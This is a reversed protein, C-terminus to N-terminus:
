LDEYGGIEYKVTTDVVQHDPANLGLVKALHTQQNGIERVAEIRTRNDPVVDGFDDRLVEGKVSFAPKPSDRIEALVERNRQTEALMDKLLDAKDDPGLGRKFRGVIGHVAVASIGYAEGIQALTEGTCYRLWIERNREKKEPQGGM